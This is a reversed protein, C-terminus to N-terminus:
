WLCALGTDPHVSRIPLNKATRIQLGDFEQPARYDKLLRAIAPWDQELTVADEPQIVVIAPPREALRKAMRAQDSESNFYGPLLWAHGGAFPRRAAVPLHPLYGVILLTQNRSTCRNIYRALPEQAVGQYKGTWPWETLLSTQRVAHSTAGRWSDLRAEALYHGVEGFQSTVLVLAAGAAAVVGYGAARVALNSFRRSGAVVQAGIWALLVPTVGFVDALRTPTTDRLMAVNITLMLVATAGVAPAQDM